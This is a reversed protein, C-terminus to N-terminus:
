ASNPPATGHRRRGFSLLCWTGFLAIAPIVKLLAGPHVFTRLLYDEEGSAPSRNPLWNAVHYLAEVAAIYVVAIALAALVGALLRMSTRRLIWRWIPFVLLVGLVAVAVAAVTGLALAKELAATGDDTM